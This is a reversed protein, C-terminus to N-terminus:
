AHEVARLEDIFRLAAAASHYRWTVITHDFGTADAKQASLAKVIPQLARRQADLLPRPDSGTHHVLALKAILETRVDRVHWVPQALWTHLEEKGSPTIRVLVRPPGAVQERGFIEAFRADILRGISRYVIPRPIEYAQGIPGAAGVLRAIAFGHGPHEAILALIV